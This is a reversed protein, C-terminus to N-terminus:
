FQHMRGVSHSKAFFLHNKEERQWANLSLVNIGIYPPIYTDLGISFIDTLVSCCHGIGHWWAAEILITVEILLVLPYVYSM